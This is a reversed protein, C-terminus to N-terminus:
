GHIYEATRPDRFSVDFEDFNEPVGDIDNQELLYSHINRSVSTKPDTTEM